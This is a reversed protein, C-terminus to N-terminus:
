YRHQHLTKVIHDEPLSAITTRVLDVDQKTQQLNLLSFVEQMLYVGLRLSTGYLMLNMVGEPRLVTEPSGARRRSRAPSAPCRHFHHLRLKRGTQRNGAPATCVRARRQVNLGGPLVGEHKLGADVCTRMAQWIKELGERIDEESRWARENALMLQSIRLGNAKCQGLLQAATSFDYPLVTQDQDLQGSAAQQQDIVFGGGISYYTECLLLNDEAFGSLTM